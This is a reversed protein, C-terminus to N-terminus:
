KFPIEVEAFSGPAATDVTAVIRRVYRRVIRWQSNGLVVIAITRIKLNQQAVINKDTTLLLEFGAAEAAAVPLTLNMRTPM